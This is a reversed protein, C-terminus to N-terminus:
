QYPVDSSLVDAHLNLQKLLSLVSFSTKEKECKPGLTINKLVEKPVMFEKFPIITNGSVRFKKEFHSKIVIRWEAEDIFTQPKYKMFPEIFHYIQTIEISEKQSNCQNLFNQVAIEKLSKDYLEQETTYECKLLSCCDITERDINRSINELLSYDFGIAVGSADKAYGRWMGLNDKKESLSFVFPFGLTYMCSQVIRYSIGMRTLVNLLFQGEQYDNLYSAHTARLTFTESKSDYGDIIALLTELTTYHYLIM